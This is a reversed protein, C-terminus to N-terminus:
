MLEGNDLCVLTYNSVFFRNANCLILTNALSNRLVGRWESRQGKQFWKGM